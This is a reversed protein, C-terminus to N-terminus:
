STVLLIIHFSFIKGDGAMVQLRTSEFMLFQRYSLLIQLMMEESGNLNSACQIFEDHMAVILNSSAIWNSCDNSICLEGLWIVVELKLDDSQKHSEDADLIRNCLRLIKNTNDDLLDHWQLGAPMDDKTMNALIAIWEVLLNDNKCNLVSEMMSEVHTNWFHHDWYVVIDSQTPSIYSTSLKVFGELASVDGTAAVQYLKHQLERSWDSLNRLVKLLVQNTLIDSSKKISSLMIGIVGSQVMEEACLPDFAMNVLLGAVSEEFPERRSMNKSLDLLKSAIGAALFKRRNGDSCSLHYALKYGYSQRSKSGIMKTIQSHINKSSIIDTCEKHFSLNFLICAVKDSISSVRLLSVLKQVTQKEGSSLEIAVDEFISTKMMMCLVSKLPQTTKMDLCCGLTTAISKKVMKCLASFDDAIHVLIRCCVMVVHEQKKSFSYSYSPAALDSSNPSAPTKGRHRARKVELEVVGLALAGVRYNSLIEHFDEVMSFALFLKGISFSLETLLDDEGFLRTLANMLQHNRILYELASLDQCLTLISDVGRQKEDVTGYLLQLAQDIVENIHDSSVSVSDEDHQSSKADARNCL